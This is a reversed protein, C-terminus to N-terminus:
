NNSATQPPRRRRPADSQRNVGPEGSGSTLLELDKKRLYRFEGERLRGLTLSGFAIRKLSIVRYGLSSFIRKVERKKGEKLSLTLITQHKDRKIIKLEAPQTRGEELRVGRRIIEVEKEQLAGKIKVWYKRKIQYRPHSLRHALSGDNTLILLGRTDWDLRGVTFIRQSIHPLLHYVTPRGKPDSRTCLYGPPKNLMLYVKKELTLPNGDLTIRDKLPNVKIGLRTVIKGNVAIRGELILEEGQRRSAVGAQALVKQLRVQSNQNSM